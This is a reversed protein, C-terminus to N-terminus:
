ALNMRAEANRALSGGGELPARCEALSGESLTAGTSRALWNGEVVTAAHNFLDSEDELDQQACAVLLPARRLCV